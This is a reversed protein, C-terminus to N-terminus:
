FIKPNVVEISTKGFKKKIKSKRIDSILNEIPRIFIEKHTNELKKSDSDLLKLTSKPMYIAIFGRYLYNKLRELKFETPDDFLGWGITPVLLSGSGSVLLREKAKYSKVSIVVNFPAGLMIYDGLWKDENSTNRFYGDPLAADLAWGCIRESITGTTSVSFLEEKNFSDLVPMLKYINNFKEESSKNEIKLQQLARQLLKDAKSTM